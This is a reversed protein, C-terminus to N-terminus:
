LFSDYFLSKVQEELGPLSQKEDYSYMLPVIRALNLSAKTFTPHFQKHFLCEQNLRKWADCIKSMVRERAVERTYEAKEMM